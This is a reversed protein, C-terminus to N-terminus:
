KLNKREIGVSVLPPARNSKYRKAQNGGDRQSLVDFVRSIFREGFGEVSQSNVVVIARDSLKLLRFGKRRRAGINALIQRIGEQLGAVRFVRPFLEAFGHTQFGGVKM